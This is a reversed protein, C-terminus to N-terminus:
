KERFKLGFMQEWVTDINFNSIYQKIYEFKKM